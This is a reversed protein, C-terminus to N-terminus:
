PQAARTQQLWRSLAQINRAFTQSSIIQQLPPVVGPFVELTEDEKLTFTKDGIVVVYDKPAFISVLRDAKGVQGQQTWAGREDQSALIKPVDAAARDRESRSQWPSLGNLKEPRRHDADPDAALANYEREIDALGAGSSWMGYHQITSQDSYSVQYGDPRLVSQGPVRVMTGKTIYLPRNTRLENFRALCPSGAPCSRRKRPPDDARRPLASKKLYNLAKPIADLYKEVGTERFLTLLIRMASQSEGGTISPPEFLRAWAPHMELDYQQAWAPQPEPMQALLLFDGGREAAQRYRADGYIRWAELYMDIMDALTNDNLTYFNRYNTGPWERSWSDPYSARKVPYDAPDPTEFFRQPWAGNPYQADILKRLAYEAADHIAADKFDLARDVRMLLRLAAQTTNDDLTTFPKRAREGECPGDVRYAYAARKARDFEIIYDWGGSCHQGRVLARAADAAADLYSRDGLTDYVDLYAMAVNPTGERQVSVQTAGEASESRGYSLDASYRFHYGGETAVETRYFAVARTLAESVAAETPAQGAAPATACVLACILAALLRM